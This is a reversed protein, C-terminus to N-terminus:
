SVQNRYGPTRSSQTADVPQAPPLRRAFGPLPAGLEWHGDAAESLAAELERRQRTLGEGCQSGPPCAEKFGTRGLM